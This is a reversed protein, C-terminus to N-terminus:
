SKNYQSHSYRTEDHDKGLRMRCWRQMWWGIFKRSVEVLCKPSYPSCDQSAKSLAVLPYCPLVGSPTRKSPPVTRRETIQL